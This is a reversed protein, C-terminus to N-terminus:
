PVVPSPYSLDNLHGEESNRYFFIPTHTYVSIRNSYYLKRTHIAGAQLTRLSFARNREKKYGRVKANNQCKSTVSCM